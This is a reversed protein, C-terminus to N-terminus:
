RGGCSAGGRVPLPVACRRMSASMELAVRTKLSGTWPRHPVSALRRSRSAVGKGPGGCRGADVEPSLIIPRGRAGTLSGQPIKRVSNRGERFRRGPWCWMPREKSRAGRFPSKRADEMELRMAPRRRPLGAAPDRVPARRRRQRMRVCGKSVRGGVGSSENTGHYGYGTKVGNQYWPLWRTGLPNEPDGFAVPEHGPRFWVPIRRSRGWPSSGWRPRRARSAWESPGPPSRKRGAHLYVMWRASVDVLTTCRPRDPHAPHGGSPHRARQAAPECREILGTCIVLSPIRRQIARKRVSVLSDGGQAGRGLDVAVRRPRELPPGGPGARSGPELAGPSRPRGTWPHMWTPWCCRRTPRRGGAKYVARKCPRTRRACGCPSAPPAASSRAPGATPLGPPSPRRRTARRDRAGAAVVRDGDRRPRGRLGARGARARAPTNGSLAASFAM